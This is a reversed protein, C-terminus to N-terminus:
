CSSATACASCARRASTLVLIVAACTCPLYAAHPMSDPHTRQTWVWQDQNRMDPHLVLNPLRDALLMVWHLRGVQLASSTGQVVTHAALLRTDAEIVSGLARVAKARVPASHEKSVRSTDVLCNLLTAKLRGLPGQHVLYRALCAEDEAALLALLPYRSAPGTRHRPPPPPSWAPHQAGAALLSSRSPRCPRPAPVRGGMCGALTLVARLDASLPSTCLRERAVCGAALAPTCRAPPTPVAAGAWGCHMCPAAMPRYSPGRRSSVGRIVIGPQEGHTLIPSPVPASRTQPVHLAQLM